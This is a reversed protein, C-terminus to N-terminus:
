APVARQDGVRRLLNAAFERRHGIRNGYPQQLPRSEPGPLGPSHMMALTLLKVATPSNRQSM